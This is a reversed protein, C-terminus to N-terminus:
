GKASSQGLERNIAQVVAPLEHVASEIVLSSDTVIYGHAIRNRMGWMGHWEGFVSELYDRDLANMAEVGASLRMAIADIVVQDGLDREL